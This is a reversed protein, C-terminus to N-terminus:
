IPKDALRERAGSSSRNRGSSRVDSRAPITRGRPVSAAASAKKPAAKTLKGEAIDKGLQYYYVTERDVNGGKARVSALEKEIRDAYKARRPDTASKSMFKAQDQMDQAQALARNAAGQTERLTRNATIQWKTMADTNPDRLQRDEEDTQRRDESPAVSARKLTEVDEELRRARELAAATISSTDERASRRPREKPEDDIDADEPEDDIDADEPEDDIDTNPLDDDEGDVGPFLSSLLKVFLGSPSNKPIM